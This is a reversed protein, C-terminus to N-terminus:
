PAAGHLSAAREGLGEGALPRPSSWAAAGDTFGSLVSVALGM